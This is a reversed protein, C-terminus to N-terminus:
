GLEDLFAKAAQLDATDFGETFWGYVEALLERAEERKGQQQWLRSLSTAARLELSKANQQRAVEIAHRFCAEAEAANERHDGPDRGRSTQVLLLSGKLLSLSSESRREGTRNVVAQAEALSVLADAVLGVAGQVAALGARLDPLGIETGTARYADMSRGLQAIGEEVGVQGLMVQMASRAFTGVAVFAPFGQEVALALMEENREQTLADEGRYLHVLTANHLAVTLTFPHSLERALALAEDARRLAQDPYGLHWLSWALHGLSNVRGFQVLYIAAPTFFPNPTSLALAQEFHETAPAFEGVNFLIEGLGHHAGGLALPDQTEEGLRLLQEAVDRATRYEARALHFIWLGALVALQPAEGMQQCLARARGCAIGVEPAAWGKAVMFAVGLTTQLDVEQRAREVADPLTGLVELGKRLHAIAEQHASRQLANEGANRLYQVARPADRGRAFHVALEAAVEQAQGGYGAELCAGIEQHLRVRQGAPVRHYLVEQYLAHIFGYRAAITGDPWSATGRAELFQGRRALGACRAEAAEAAGEVGAAVAAASFEVGAVSAAELITQDETSVQELHQEILQRLSEPLAVDVAELGGPLVWGTAGEELAGQQVLTDVLTVLFLPNGDTRQHVMRALGAPLEPGPCRSTLYTAVATESLYDLLLEECQGHRRLEHTLSRLPQAAVIAEAPRYTGLVLLRAAERRRAVYELWALTSADSWHLDELVLVLPREATLMEVAEALERLMRAQTTGREARELAAREAENLLAPMQVLWSPAHQRLHALLPEGEPRRCLRGLAELVPLYAEGVGYQDVCQGHGIWLAEEGGVQAVFADVLTTKGIGAEGTIFGVRREGALATAFWQHLQALEAERGVLPVSVRALPQARRPAWGPTPRALVHAQPAAPPRDIITVPAVFRYGRGRVTEIFAPARADDGLAQRLERICVSLASESVVTDAWVADLVADRTVLQGPHEALYRLVAFAKNTLHIADEGRWLREDAIDVRFPEFM